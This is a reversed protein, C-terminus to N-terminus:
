FTARKANIENFRTAPPCRGVVTDIMRPTYTLGSSPPIGHGFVFRQNISDGHPVNSDFSLDSDLAGICLSKHIVHDSAVCCFYFGPLPLYAIKHLSLPPISLSGQRTSALQLRIKTKENRVAIKHEPKLADVDAFFIIDEISSISTQGTCIWPGRESFRM